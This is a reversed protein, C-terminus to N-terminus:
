GAWCSTRSALLFFHILFEKKELPSSALLFYFLNCSFLSVMQLQLFRPELPAHEWERAVQKTERIVHRHITSVDASLESMCCRRTGTREGRMSVGGSWASHGHTVSGNGNGNGNWNWSVFPPLYALLVHPARFGRKGGV